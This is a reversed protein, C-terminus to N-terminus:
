LKPRKVRRKRINSFWPKLRLLVYGAEMLNLWDGASTQSIGCDRALQNLKLMQGTNAACLM